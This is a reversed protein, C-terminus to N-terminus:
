RMSKEIRGLWDGRLDHYARLRALREEATTAPLEMAAAAAALAGSQGTGVLGRSRATRMLAADQLGLMLTLMRMSLRAVGADDTYLAAAGSEDGVRRLAMNGLYAGVVGAAEAALVPAIGGRYLPEELLAWVAVRNRTPDAPAPAPDNVFVEHVRLPQDRSAHFEIRLEEFPAPYRFVGTYEGPGTESWSLSSESAPQGDFATIVRAPHASSLLTLKEVRLRGPNALALHPPLLPTPMWATEPVGDLADGAATTLGPWTPDAMGPSADVLRLPCPAYKAAEVGAMLRPALARLQAPPLAWAATEGQLAPVLPGALLLSAGPLVREYQAVQAGLAEVADAGGGVRIEAMVGSAWIIERMWPTWRELRAAAVHESFGRPTTTSAPLLAGLHLPAVTELRAQAEMFLEFDEPRMTAGVAGPVPWLLAPSLRWASLWQELAARVPAPSVGDPPWALGGMAPLPLVMKAPFDAVQVLLPVQQSRPRNEARLWAAYAHRGPRADPPIRYLLLLRLRAGADLDWPQPQPLLADGGALAFLEPRPIARDPAVLELRAQTLPRDDNVLLIEAVAFGGPWGAAAWPAAMAAPPPEEGVASTFGPPGQYVEPAALTALLIFLLSM